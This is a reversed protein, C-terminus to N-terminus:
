NLSADYYNIKVLYSGETLKNCFKEIDVKDDFYTRVSHYFNSGGIYIAAREESM